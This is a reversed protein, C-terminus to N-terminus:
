IYESLCFVVYMLFYTSYTCYVIVQNDSYGRVSRIGQVTHVKHVIYKTSPERSIGPCVSYRTCYTRHTCYLVTYLTCLTGPEKSIVPCVSHCASYTGIYLYQIYWQVPVTHVYTCTSYTIHVYTGPERCTEQCGSHWTNVM